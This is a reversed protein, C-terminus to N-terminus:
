ADCKGIQPLAEIKTEHPAIGSTPPIGDLLLSMMSSSVQNVGTKQQPLILEPITVGSIVASGPNQGWKQYVPFQGYSGASRASTISRLRWRRGRGKDQKEKRGGFLPRFVLIGEGCERSCRGFDPRSVKPPTPIRGRGHNPWV